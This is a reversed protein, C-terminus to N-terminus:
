NNIYILHYLIIFKLIIKTSIKKYINYWRIYILIIDDLIYIM